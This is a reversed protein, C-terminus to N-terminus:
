GTDDYPTFNCKLIHVEDLMIGVHGQFYVIDNRQLKKIDVVTNGLATQQDASDRPPCSYGQATLSLQVLASCDVGFGSRGGYLYPVGVFLEATQAIGGAMAMDACPRIHGEFVWQGDPLQVFGNESQANQAISLRSLLSVSMDPRSKFDPELYFHTALACVWHTPEAINDTKILQDREVYGKYGDLPSYGYVYAGHPEEVIFDEGFLLQSDNKTILDPDQPNGIIDATPTIVRLRM